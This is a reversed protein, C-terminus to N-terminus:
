RRPYTQAFNLLKAVVGAIAPTDAKMTSHPHCPDFRGRTAAGSKCDPHGVLIMVGPSLTCPGMARENQRGTIELSFRSPVRSLAM